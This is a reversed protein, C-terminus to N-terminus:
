GGLFLFSHMGVDLASADTIETGDPLRIQSTVDLSQVQVKDAGDIWRIHSGNIIKIAYKTGATLGTLEWQGNADTTDSAVAAGTPLDSADVAYAEVTVGSIGSGTDDLFRGKLNM